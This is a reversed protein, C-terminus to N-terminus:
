CQRSVLCDAVLKLEMAYEDRIGADLSQGSITAQNNQSSDRQRGQMVARAGNAHPLCRVCFLCFLASAVSGPGLPCVCVYVCVFM